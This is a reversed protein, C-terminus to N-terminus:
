TRCDESNLVDYTISSIIGVFHGKLQILPAGVFGNTPSTIDVLIPKPPTPAPTGASTTTPASIPENERYPVRSVWFAGGLFGSIIVIIAITKFRAFKMTTCETKRLSVCRFSGHPNRRSASEPGGM